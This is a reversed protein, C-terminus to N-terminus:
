TFAARPSAGFQHFTEVDLKCQEPKAAPFSPVIYDRVKRGRSDPGRSARTNFKMAAIVPKVRVRRLSRWAIWSKEGEEFSSASCSKSCSVAWRAEPLPYTGEQYNSKGYGARPIAIAAADNGAAL